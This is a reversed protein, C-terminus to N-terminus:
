RFPTLLPRGAFHAELNDVVLQAMADRTSVTASAAHPQLVVNEMGLLTEPVNPEDAFVDLGAGAIRGEGLAKVLAPEDVVSGRAVNVLFGEPGLAEIVEATVIGRTAEGGPCCLALVDARRAMEVLDPYFPWAVDAQRRRGHYAIKMGLAEGRRALARGIRGLGLIGLTRGRPSTTLPMTGESRWRGERVWRDGFPIRRMVALMLALGMDAVDETLVDPTNTIPINRRGCAEQDIADIGVGFCAVIELSPLRGILGASAGKEGTTVLARVRPGVEALLREPDEERYLHHLAYRSELLAMHRPRNPWVVLVDPKM